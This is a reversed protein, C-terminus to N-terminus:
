KRSIWCNLRFFILSRKGDRVSRTLVTVSHNKVSLGCRCLAVTGEKIEESGDPYILTAEGKIILPGQEGIKITPKTNEM